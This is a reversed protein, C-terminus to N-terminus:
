RHTPWWVRTM